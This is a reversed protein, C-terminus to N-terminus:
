APVTITMTDGSTKLDDLTLELSNKVDSRQGVTFPAILRARLTSTPVVIKLPCVLHKLLRADRGPPVITMSLNFQHRLSNQVMYFHTPVVTPLLSKGTDDEVKSAVLPSLIGLVPATDEVDVQIQLYANVFLEGTSRLQRTINFSRIEARIPGSYALSGVPPTGEMIQIVGTRGDRSFVFGHDRCLRDLAEYFPLDAVEFSILLSEAM